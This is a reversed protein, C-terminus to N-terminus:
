AVAFHGRSRLAGAALVRGDHRVLPRDLDFEQLVVRRLRHLIEPQQGLVAVVVPQGNWRITFPKM